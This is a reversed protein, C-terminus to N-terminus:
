HIRPSPANVKISVVCRGEVGCQGSWESNPGFHLSYNHALLKPVRAFRLTTFEEYVKDLRHFGVGSAPLPLNMASM